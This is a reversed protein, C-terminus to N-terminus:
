KHYSKERQTKRVLNNLNSDIENSGHLIIGETLCLANRHCGCETGVMHTLETDANGFIDVFFIFSGQELSELM